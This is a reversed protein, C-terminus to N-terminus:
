IVGELVGLGMFIAKTNGYKTGKPFLVYNLESIILLLKFYYVVWFGHNLYMNFCCKMTQHPGCM